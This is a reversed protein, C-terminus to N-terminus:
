SLLVQIRTMRGITQSWDTTSRSLRDSSKVRVVDGERVYAIMEKLKVRDDVNMGSVIEAFLRDGKGIAELQRAENQDAANVRM